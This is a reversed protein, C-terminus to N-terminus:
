LKFVVQQEDGWGRSRKWSAEKWYIRSATLLLHVHRHTPSTLFFFFASFLSSSRSGLHNGAIDNGEM